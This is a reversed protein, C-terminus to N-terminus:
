KAGRRARRRENCARVNATVEKIEVVTLWVCRRGKSVSVKGIHLKRAQAIYDASRYMYEPTETGHRQRVPRNKKCWVGVRSSRNGEEPPTMHTEVFGDPPNCQPGVWEPAPQAPRASSFVGEEIVAGTVMGPNKCLYDSLEERSGVRPDTKSNVVIAEILVRNIKSSM